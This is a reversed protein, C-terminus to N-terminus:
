GDSEFEPALELNVLSPAALQLVREAAQIDEIDFDIYRFSLLGAPPSIAVLPPICTFSQITLRELANLDSSVVTSLPVDEQTAQICCVSLARLIGCTGLLKVIDDMTNFTIFCLDLETVKPFLAMCAVAMSIPFFNTGDWGEWEVVRVNPMTPIQLPVVAEHLQKPSYVEPHRMIWFKDGFDVYSFKVKKVITQLEPTRQLMDRWWSIDQECAFDVFSFLHEIALSRMSKSVLCMARLSPVDDTNHAVIELAIETPIRSWLQMISPSLSM